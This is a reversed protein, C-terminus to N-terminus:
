NKKKEWVEWSFTQYPETSLLNFQNKDIAPFFTDAPGSYDVRSIYMKDVINQELAKSYITGGGIVFVEPDGSKQCFELASELSAVFILNESNPRPKSSIVVSIRNPLARGISEFTKRGVILHHGTTLNKFLKLDEPLSWLLKNDKGLEGNKGIAAILSVMM